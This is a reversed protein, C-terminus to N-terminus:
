WQPFNSGAEAEWATTDDNGDNAKNPTLDLSTNGSPDHYYSSATAPKGQSLVVNGAQAPPMAATSTATLTVCVLMLLLVLRVSRSATPM